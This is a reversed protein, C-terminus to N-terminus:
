SSSCVIFIEIGKECAEGAYGKSCTCYFHTKDSPGSYDFM